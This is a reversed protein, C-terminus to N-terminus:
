AVLVFRQRLPGQSPLYGVINQSPARPLIQGLDPWFGLLEGLLPLLAFAALLLGLWPWRLALLLSGAVTGMVLAPGWYLTAKPAWFLQREVRCGMRSLWSAIRNAAAREGKTGTTRPGGACLDVLYSWAREM